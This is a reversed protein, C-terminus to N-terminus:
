KDIVEFKCQVSEGNDDMLELTRMGKNPLISLQHFKQTSGIYNGDLHWFITVNNNKHTAKFICKSRSGSQDIPVYIKFGERPYIIDLQHLSM